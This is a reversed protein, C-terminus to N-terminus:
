RCARYHARSGPEARYLGGTAYRSSGVGLWISVRCVGPSNAHKEGSSPSAMGPREMIFLRGGVGQIGSTPMRGFVSALVENRTAQRYELEDVTLSNAM